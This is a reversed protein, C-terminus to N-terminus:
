SCMAEWITNCLVESDNCWQAVNMCASIAIATESPAMVLNEDGNRLVIVVGEYTETERNYKNLDKFEYDSSYLWTAFEYQSPTLIRRLIKDLIASDFEEPMEHYHEDVLDLYYDIEALDYQYVAQIPSNHIYETFYFPDFGIRLFNASVLAKIIAQIEEKSFANTFFFKKYDDPDSFTYSDVDNGHVVKYHRLYELRRRFACEIYYEQKEKSLHAVGNRVAELFRDDYESPLGISEFSVFEKAPRCYQKIVAMVNVKKGLFYLYSACELRM